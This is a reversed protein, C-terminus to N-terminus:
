KQAGHGQRWLATQPMFQAISQAGKATVPTGKFALPRLRSFINLSTIDHLDDNYSCPDASQGGMADAFFGAKFHLM